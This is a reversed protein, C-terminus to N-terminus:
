RGSRMYKSFNEVLKKQVEGIDVNKWESGFNKKLFDTYLERNEVIDLANNFVTDVNLVPKMM